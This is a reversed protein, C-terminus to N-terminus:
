GRGVLEAVAKTKNLDRGGFFVNHGAQAWRAGLARGMNGSGLIGINM